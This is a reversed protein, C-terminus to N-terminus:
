GVSTVSPAQAPRPNRRTVSVQVVPNAQQSFRGGVELLNGDAIQKVRREALLEAYVPCNKYRDFCFRYAYGLHDLSFHQSCRFDARNLFPCHDARDSM